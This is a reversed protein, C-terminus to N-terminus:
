QCQPIRRLEAASELTLEAPCELKLDAVSELTLDAASESSLEAVGTPHDSTRGAHDDGGPLPSM